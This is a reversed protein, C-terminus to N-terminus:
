AHVPSHSCRPCPNSRGGFCSIGTRVPSISAVAFEMPLLASVGAEPTQCHAGGHPLNPILNTPAKCARKKGLSTTSALRQLCDLDPEPWLGPLWKLPM